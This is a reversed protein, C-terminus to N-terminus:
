LSLLSIYHTTFRYVPYLTYGNKGTKGTPSALGMEELWWGAHPFSAIDVFQENSSLEKSEELNVTIAGLTEDFISEDYEYDEDDFLEEDIDAERCLLLVALSGNDSYRSFGLKVDIERNYLPFSYTESSILM